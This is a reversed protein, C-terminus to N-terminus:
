RLIISKDNTSDSYASCTLKSEYTKIHNKHHDSNKKGQSPGVSSYGLQDTTQNGKWQDDGATIGPTV